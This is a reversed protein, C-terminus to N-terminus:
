RARKDDLLRKCLAAGKRHSLAIAWARTRMKTLSARYKKTWRM